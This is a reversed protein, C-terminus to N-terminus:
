ESGFVFQSIKNEREFKTRREQLEEPTFYPEAHTIQIHTHDM